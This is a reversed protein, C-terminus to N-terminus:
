LKFTEIFSFLKAANYNLENAEMFEVRIISKM